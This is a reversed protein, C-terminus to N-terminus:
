CEVAVTFDGLCPIAGYRGQLYGREINEQKRPKYDTLPYLTTAGEKDKETFWIQDRRLSSAGASSGLLNTDHSTFLLQAHKPNSEPRNFMEVIAQGLSPHLSSEIEDVLLRGGSTLTRQLLPILRLLSRTGASEQELDLWSDDDSAQHKVLMRPRSGSRSTEDVVKLEAIGVDAQKLLNRISEIPWDEGPVLQSRRLGRQGERRTSGHEVNLADVNHFWHYIPKLQQHNNQVAASLFLANPRILERIADNPGKLHEGFKFRNADREFWVQKRDRPWAFLWEEQVTQDDVVFGYAIRTTGLFFTAEFMSPQEHATGWAFPSRPVGGAPEWVGHSQVVAGCMFDLAALVNSKGSANAGYIGVVPLIKEKRGEVSRLRPDSEDGIRAAVVSLAQEDRLSRFNEVRFELLM